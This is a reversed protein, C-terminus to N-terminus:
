GKEEIFRCWSAPDHINCTSLDFADLTAQAQEQVSSSGGEADTADGTDGSSAGQTRLLTYTHLCLGTKSQRDQLERFVAHASGEGTDRMRVHLHSKPFAPHDLLARDAAAAADAAAEKLTMWGCDNAVHYRDVTCAELNWHLFGHGILPEGFHQQVLSGAYGWPQSRAVTTGTAPDRIRWTLGSEICTAYPMPDLSSSGVNQKFVRRVQQLHIDGLLIADYGEGFWSLPVCQKAAIAPAAPEITGHFLAIKAFAADFAAPDPFPPLAEIRGSAAGAMLADQVTVLGFGVDGALYHGTQDLYCIRKLGTKLLLPSLMDMEDPSEQRYDHNGRLIYVPTWV